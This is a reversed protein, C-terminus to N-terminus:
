ALELLPHDDYREGLGGEGADAPHELVPVLTLAVGERRRRELLRQGHGVPKECPGPEGAFDEIEKRRKQAESPIASRDRLGIDDLAEGRSLPDRALEHVRGHRELERLEFRLEM